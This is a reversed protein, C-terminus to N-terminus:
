SLWVPCASFMYSLDKSNKFMWKYSLYVINSTWLRFSKLKEKLFSINVIIKSQLKWSINLSQTNARCIPGQSSIYVQYVSTDLKLSFCAPTHYIFINIINRQIWPMNCTQSNIKNNLSSTMDCMCMYPNWISLRKRNMSYKWITSKM